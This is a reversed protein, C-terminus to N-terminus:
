SDKIDIFNIKELDVTNIKVETNYNNIILLYDKLLSLICDLYINYYDKSHNTNFPILKDIQSLM